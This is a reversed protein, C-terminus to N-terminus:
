ARAEALMELFGRDDTPRPDEKVEYVRGDIVVQWESTIQQTSTNRRVTVIAPSKSQLRAQMVAEGGRLHQLKSWVTFRDEMAIVIQGDPTTGKVPARFSARKTLDGTATM